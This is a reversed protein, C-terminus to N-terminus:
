EEKKKKRKKRRRKRMASYRRRGPTASDSLEASDVKGSAWKKFPGVRGPVKYYPM